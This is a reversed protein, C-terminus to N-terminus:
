ASRKKNQSPVLDVGGKFFPNCRIFRKLSLFLAKYIGHKALAERTYESCTPYFRCCPRFFPSVFRQYFIVLKIIITKM